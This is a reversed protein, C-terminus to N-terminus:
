SQQEIGHSFQAWEITKHAKDIMFDEMDASIRSRELKSSIM